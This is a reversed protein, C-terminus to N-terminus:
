IESLSADVTLLTLSPDIIFSWTSYRVNFGQCLEKVFNKLDNSRFESM